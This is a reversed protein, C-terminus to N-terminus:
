QSEITRYNELRRAIKKKWKIMEKADSGFDTEELMEYMTDIREINIEKEALNLWFLDKMSASLKKISLKKRLKRSYVENLDFCTQFFTLSQNNRKEHPYYLQTTDIVNTIETQLYGDQDIEKVVCLVTLPIDIFNFLSDKYFDRSITDRSWVLDTLSIKEKGTDEPPVVIKIPLIFGVPIPRGDPGLGPNWDPSNKLINIAQENQEENIGKVVDIHTVEGTKEVVFSTFVYGVTVTDESIAQQAFLTSSYVSILLIFYFKM